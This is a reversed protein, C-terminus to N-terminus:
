KLAGTPTGQLLFWTVSSPYGQAGSSARLHPFRDVAGSEFQRWIFHSYYQPNVQADAPESARDILNGLVGCKKGVRGTM